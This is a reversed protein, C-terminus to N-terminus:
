KGASSRFGTMGGHGEDVGVTCNLIGRSHNLIYIFIIKMILIVGYEEDTLM